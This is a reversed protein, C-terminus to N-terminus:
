MGTDIPRIPGFGKFTFKRKFLSVDQTNKLHIASNKAVRKKSHQVRHVLINMEAVERSV